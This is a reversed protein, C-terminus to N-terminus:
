AANDKLGPVPLMFDKEDGRFERKTIKEFRQMAAEITDDALGDSETFRDLLFKRFINNLFSSGCVDGTGSVVERITALKGEGADEITYTILDVTGGGADCACFNDGPVLTGPDMSHLAYTVAAEPESIMHANKGFGAAEACARTAAKAQDSWIAPVTLIWEIPTTNVVANGLKGKLVAIVHERVKLLFDTVKEEAKKTCDHALAMPDPYNISLYSKEHGRTPDLELKFKQLRPESEKIQFGWRM